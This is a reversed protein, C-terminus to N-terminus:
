EVVVDVDSTLVDDARDTWVITGPGRSSLRNRKQHARRDFIHTLDLGHVARSALRRAVASGVTGFGLLGVRCRSASSFVATPKNFDPGPSHGSTHFSDISM